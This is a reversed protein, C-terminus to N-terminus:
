RGHFNIRRRKKKIEDLIAQRKEQSNKKLLPNCKYFLRDYFSEKCGQMGLDTGMNLKQFLDLKKKYGKVKGYCYKM